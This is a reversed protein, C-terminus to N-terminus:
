MSDLIQHVSHQKTLSMGKKRLDDLDIGPYLDRICRTGADITAEFEKTVGKWTVEFYVDQDRITAGWRVLRVSLGSDLHTAAKTEPDYTITM